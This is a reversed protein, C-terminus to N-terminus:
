EGPEALQETRAKFEAMTELKVIRGRLREATTPKTAISPLVSIADRLPALEHHTYVKNMGASSHGTLQQRIEQAVGANALASNFSHRLSHFSVSSVSRGSKSLRERIVHQEIRAKIMILRFAQSLPSAKREALSPFLFEDENKPTPLSLLFDQLESHIPTTVEGGGKRPQFRIVKDLALDVDRFRLNACDLLRQGTFFGVMILGRWEGEATEVLAKVQEVSFVHKRQPKDRLREIALCPNITVHGQRWASNFASALIATDLNLTAPALGLAERKDRFGAVDRSSIAAINLNAKPGLFEIFERMTQEHRKAM